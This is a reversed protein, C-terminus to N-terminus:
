TLRHWRVARADIHESVHYIPVKPYKKFHQIISRDIGQGGHFARNNPEEITVTMQYRKTMKSLDDELVRLTTWPSDYGSNKVRFM